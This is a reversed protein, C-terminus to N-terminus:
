DSEFISILKDKIQEKRDGFYILTGEGDIIWISPLWQMNYLNKIKSDWGKGEAINLWPIENDKLFNKVKEIDENLNVGIIEFGKSHYKNYLEKFVPFAQVCPKCTMSWFDLLVVKGRFDSLSYEKGDIFTATFDKAKKSLGVNDVKIRQILEGWKPQNKLVQFKEDIEFKQFNLTGNEVTREMWKMALDIQNNDIALGTIKMSTYPSKIPKLSDYRLLAELLEENKNMDWLLLCWSKNLEIDEPYEKLMEKYINLAEEQKGADKLKKAENMSVTYKDNTGAFVVVCSLLISFVILIKFSKNKFM